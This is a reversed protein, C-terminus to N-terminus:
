KISFTKNSCISLVLVTFKVSEHCILIMNVANIETLWLRFVDSDSYLWLYSVPLRDLVNPFFIVRVGPELQVAYLKLLMRYQLEM